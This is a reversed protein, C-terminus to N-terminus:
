PYISLWCAFIHNYFPMTSLKILCNEIVFSVIEKKLKRKKAAYLLTYRLLAFPHDTIIPSAVM